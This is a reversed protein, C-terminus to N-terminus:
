LSSLPVPAPWAPTLGVAGDRDVVMAAYGARTALWHLADRGRAVAATAYVDAWLLSPGMVTVARVGDAFRGTHPDVVRLEASAGYATAVGGSRRALLALVRGPGSPDEVNVKWAPSSAASRALVHRGATLRYDVDELADLRRAARELAWGAVMAAPDFGQRGSATPVAAEFYGDTRERAEDCLNVVSQMPLPCQELRLEGRNFRNLMSTRRSRSFLADAARLEGFVAAAAADVEARHVDPSRLQLEVAQGLLRRAWARTPIDPPPDLTLAQEAPRRATALTM